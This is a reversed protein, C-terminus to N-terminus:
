IASVQFLIKGEADFVYVCNMGNDAVLIHGYNTDVAIDVPEQFANYTFSKITEGDRTIETIFKTRWNIVVLGEASIAIGVLFKIQFM